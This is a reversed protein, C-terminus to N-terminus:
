HMKYFTSVIDFMEELFVFNDFESFNGQGGEILPLTLFIFNYLNKYVKLTRPQCLFIFIGEPTNLIKGPRWKM